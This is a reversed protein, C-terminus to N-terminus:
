VVMGECIFIPRYLWIKVDYVPRYEWMMRGHDCGLGVCSYIYAWVFPKYVVVVAGLYMPSNQFFHLGCMLCLYVVKPTGPGHTIYPPSFVRSDTSQTHHM